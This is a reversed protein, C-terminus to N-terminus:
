LADFKTPNFFDPINSALVLDLPTTASCRCWRAWDKSTNGWFSWLETTHLAVKFWHHCVFLFNHSGKELGGFDGKLMVNWHFIKGLIEPPVRHVNLLSNRTCKLETLTKELERIQKDLTHITDVNLEGSLRNELYTLNTDTVHRTDSPACQSRPSIAVKRVLTTAIQLPHPLCQLKTTQLSTTPLPRVANPGAAHQIRTGHSATPIRM